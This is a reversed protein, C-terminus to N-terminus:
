EFDGVGIAGTGESGAGTFVLFADLGPGRDIFLSSGAYDTGQYVGIADRGDGDFDGVVPLPSPSIGFAPQFFADQGPGGQIIVGDDVETIVRRDPYKVVVVGSPLTVRTVGGPGKYTVTGDLGVVEYGGNRYHTVTVGDPRVFQSKIPGDGYQYVRSGDSMILPGAGGPPVSGTSGDPFTVPINGTPGDDDVPPAKPAQTGGNAPEVTPEKGTDPPYLPLTVAWPPQSSGIKSRWDPGFMSEMRQDMLMGYRKSANPVLWLREYLVPEAGWEGGPLMIVTNDREYRLRNVEDSVDLGNSTSEIMEIADNLVRVRDLGAMGNTERILGDTFNGLADYYETVVQGNANRWNNLNNISRNIEIVSDLMESFDNAVNAFQGYAEMTAGFARAQGVLAGLKPPLNKGAVFDSFFWNAADNADLKGDKFTQYLVVAGTARSTGGSKFNNKWFGSALFEGLKNRAPGPPMGKYFERLKDSNALLTRALAEAQGMLIGHVKKRVEDAGLNVADNQVQAIKEQAGILAFTEQFKTVYETVADAKDQLDVGSGELDIQSGAPPGLFAVKISPVVGWEDQPDTTPEGDFSYDRDFRRQWDTGLGTTMDLDIGIQLGEIKTPDTPAVKKRGPPPLNSAGPVVRIISTNTDIRSVAVIPKESTVVVSGIFGGPMNGALLEVKSVRVDDTADVRIPVTSGEIVSAGTSLESPGSLKVTPPSEGADVGILKGSRDVVVVLADPADGIGSARRLIQDVENTTLSVPSVYARDGHHGFKSPDAPKKRLKTEGDILRRTQSRREVTVWCQKDADWVLNGYQAADFQGAAPRAVLSAAAVAFVMLGGQLARRYGHTKMM